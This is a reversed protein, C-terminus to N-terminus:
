YLLYLKDIEKLTWKFIIKGFNGRETKNEILKMYADRSGGNQSCQWEEVKETSM